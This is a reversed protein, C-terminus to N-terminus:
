TNKINKIERYTNRDLACLDQHLIKCLVALCTFVIPGTFLTFILCFFALPQQEIDRFLRAELTFLLVCISCILSIVALIIFIASAKRLASFMILGEM